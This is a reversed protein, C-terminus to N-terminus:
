FSSWFKVPKIKLRLDCQLCRKAEGPAANEDLPFVLLQSDNKREPIPLLKSDVRLLGAFLDDRGLCADPEFSSTLKEELNGDGGLYRDIEVAAQRGSAISQIVSSTGLIADGAAFVGERGCSLTYPDVEILRGATQSVSFGDPLAPRQGIAFIVTDAPILQDSEPKVAIQPNYQQDFSLSVVESCEVGIIVDNREVIRNFARGAFVTIGEEQGMKVDERSAPIADGSELCALSVEPAGIRKAVRACDFAVSGGGLVLVQQGLNVRNGLNVERLFDVGTLVGKSDAGPIPLKQGQHTGIAILVAEFGDLFLSDLSRIEADTQITIGMKQLNEIEANLVTRPLRYEPIGLRPMGGAQLAKEFVTVSHGQKALYYAATLGAPGSGIIAVLHRTAPKISSDFRAGTQEFVFRKLDRISIPQNVQGRRCVIECPHDCVYGLLGPFPVKERILGIASAYDGARIFRLYGAVDIEAPCNYRCPLLAKKRKKGSALDDKDLIAGTPCVEACAGCFRCGSEALSLDKETGIYPEEGRQKRSLIGVGRLDRCARVCRECLVCKNPDIRFLPNRDNVAFLRPHRPISLQDIAFYQKLSQLECNLYKVCTGCDSPHIALIVEMAALQSKQAKETDTRVTMRDVVIVDCATVLDDTGAIEVVCLGCDGTSKLDPHYCLHPIYVGAELCAELLSTGAPTEIIRGNVSIKVIEL